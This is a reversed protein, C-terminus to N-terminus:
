VVGGYNDSWTARIAVLGSTVLGGSARFPALYAGHGSHMAEASETDDQVLQDAAATAAFGHALTARGCIGSSGGYRSRM